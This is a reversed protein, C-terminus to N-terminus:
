EQVEVDKKREKRSPNRFGYIYMVVIGFFLIVAPVIIVAVVKVIKQMTVPYYALQNGTQKGVISIGADNGTYSNLINLVFTRNAGASDVDVSKQFLMNSTILFVSGANPNTACSAVSFSGGIDGDVKTTANEFDTVKSFAKSSTTLVDVSEYGNASGDKVIGKSTMMLINLNAKDFGETYITDEMKPMLYYPTDYIYRETRQEIVVGPCIELGYGSLFDYLNDLEENLADVSVVLNGGDALFSELIQLEDETYDEEPSLMVITNCNEPLSADMSAIMGVLNIEELEYNNLLLMSKFDSNFESEGHGQTVCITIAEEENAYYIAGTLQNEIELFYEYSHTSVQHTTVFHTSDLYIYKEDCVVLISNDTIDSISNLYQARFESDLAVNKYEVSINENLKAYANFFERYTANVKSEDSLAYITTPKSIQSVVERTKDSLSLLNEATFDYVKSTSFGVVSMIIVSVVIIAGSIITKKISKWRGDLAVWTLFFFGVSLLIFYIIDGSRIIGSIMDNYKGYVSTQRFFDYVGSGSVFTEILRVLIVVIYVVYTLIAALVSNSSIASVFMGVSLLVFTTLVVAIYSAMLHKVSMVGYLSVIYAYVGTTLIPILVFVATALYKGLLIEITHVPATFLLQDTKSKKEQAFLRMTCLPTLLIVVLFSNNLVHYGFQTSYSNICTYAFLVGTVLFFLVYYLYAFFSTAYSKLEKKFITLM